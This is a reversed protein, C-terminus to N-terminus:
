TYYYFIAGFCFKFFHLLMYVQFYVALRNDIISSFQIFYAHERAFHLLLIAMSIKMDSWSDEKAEFYNLFIEKTKEAYQILVSDVM